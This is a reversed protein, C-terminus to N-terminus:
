ALVTVLGRGRLSLAANFIIIYKETFETGAAIKSAAASDTLGTVNIYMAIAAIAIYSTKHVGCCYSSASAIICLGFLFSCQGCDHFGCFGPYIQLITQFNYCIYYREMDSM